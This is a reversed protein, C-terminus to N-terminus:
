KDSPAPTEVPIQSWLCVGGNKGKGIKFLKGDERKDSSNARVYGLARENLVSYNSPQANLASCVMSALNPMTIPQGPFKEFQANVADAVTAQQTETEAIHKTLAASFAKESADVDVVGGKDTVLTVTLNQTSMNTNEQIKKTQGM